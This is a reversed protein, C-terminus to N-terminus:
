LTEVFYCNNKRYVGCRQKYSNVLYRINDVFDYVIPNDKGQTKRAIRGVSQTVIAYDKQPTTLFLRELRPIDLGEKALAYTAFLYLLKGQRMDDLARERIDKKTKGNIVVSQLQLVIPLKAQLSILHEIRDSLILTPRREASIYDAILDCRYQNDCLYSILKSYNITGDGNLCKDSMGVSTSIPHIGVQMTTDVVAEDPVTYEVKGILAKTAQILGDARHVTASLGYKYRASLRSLVKQYRTVSTPSGSVRHCEDVVICEWEDKHADLDISSLTQVTAFTIGEGIDVKGGTITGFLSKDMYLSARDKSQKILDLTHCIWLTKCKLEAIISLGMQTKGSGAPARLIGGGELVMKSVATRQYPYLPIQAKFDVATHARFNDIITCEQLLEDPMLSLSGYPLHIESGRTTYLNIQQPTGGLWLGLRLKKDFDPNRLTLNDRVWIRMDDTPETVIIENSITLRMDHGDM